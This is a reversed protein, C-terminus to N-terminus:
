NIIIIVVMRIVTNIIIILYKILNDMLQIQWKTEQYKRCMPVTEQKDHVDTIQYNQKFKLYWNLGYKKKEKDCFCQLAGNLPATENSEKYYDLYEYGAMEILESHTDFKEIIMDCDVKPFKNNYLISTQKFSIIMAFSVSLMFATILLATFIRAGYNFGKIHRNEWIINTPETAPIFQPKVGLIMATEFDDDNNRSSWWSVRKSYNLAENFGDDSEFTIFACVPRTLKEYNAPDRVLETM